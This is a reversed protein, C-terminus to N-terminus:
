LMTFSRDISQLAIPFEMQNKASCRLAPHQTLRTALKERFQTGNAGREQAQWGSAKQSAEVSGFRNGNRNGDSASDLKKL